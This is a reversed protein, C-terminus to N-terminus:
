YTCAEEVRLGAVRSEFINDGTDMWSIGGSIVVVRGDDHMATTTASQWTDVDGAVEVVEMGMQQARLSHGRLTSRLSAEREHRTAEFRAAELEATVAQWQTATTVGEPLDWFRYKGARGICRAAVRTGGKDAALAAITAAFWRPANQAVVDHRDGTVSTVGGGGGSDPAFADAPAVLRAPDTGPRFAPKGRESYNGM